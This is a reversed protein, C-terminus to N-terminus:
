PAPTKSNRSGPNISSATDPQRLLITLDDAAVGGLWAYEFSVDNGSQSYPYYYEVRLTPSETEATVLTGNAVSQTDYVATMLSGDTGEYAVASPEGAEPPIIVSVTAPLPADSALEATVLVLVSPEDYDPWVDVQLRALRSVNEQAGAPSVLIAALLFVLVIIVKINHLRISM